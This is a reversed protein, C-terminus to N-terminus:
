FSIKGVFYLILLVFGCVLVLTLFLQVCCESCAMYVRTHRWSFFTPVIDAGGATLDEVVWGCHSFVSFARVHMFLFKFLPAIGAGVATLDEGVWDCQHFM